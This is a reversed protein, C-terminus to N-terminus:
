GSLVVSFCNSPDYPFKKTLVYMYKNKKVLYKSIKYCIVGSVYYLLMNMEDDNQTENEILSEVDNFYKQIGLNGICLECTGEIYTIYDRIKEKSGAKFDPRECWM